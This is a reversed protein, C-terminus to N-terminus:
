GPVRGDAPMDCAAARQWAALLQQDFSGGPVSGSFSVFVRQRQRVGAKYMVNPDQAMSSSWNVAGVIFKYGRLQAKKNEGWDGAAADVTRTPTVFADHCRCVNWDGVLSTHRANGGDANQLGQCVLPANCMGTLHVCEARNYSWFPHMWQDPSVKQKGKWQTIPNQGIVTTVRETGDYEYPTEFSAFAEMLEITKAPTFSAEVAFGGTVKDTTVRVEWKVATKGYLLAGSFVYGGRTKAADSAFAPHEHGVSLWEHDKFRLMRRDGEYFWDPAWGRETKVFVARRGGNSIEIRNLDPKM